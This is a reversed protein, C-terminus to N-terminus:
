LSQGAKELEKMLLPVGMTVTHIGLVSTLEFVEM